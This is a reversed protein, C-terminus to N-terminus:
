EKDLYTWPSQNFGAKLDRHEKHLQAIPKPDKRIVMSDYAMKMQFSVKSLPMKGIGACLGPIAVSDYIKDRCCRLIARMALYANLTNSVDEPQRMTPAYIITTGRGEEETPIPFHVAQGVHLEGYFYYLITYKIRDELIQGYKNRIALDLGGDM